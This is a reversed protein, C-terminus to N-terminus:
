VNKNFAREGSSKVENLPTKTQYVKNPRFRNKRGTVYKGISRTYEKVRGTIPIFVTRLLLRFCSEEIKSEKL